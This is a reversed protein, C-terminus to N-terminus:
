APELVQAGLIAGGVVHADDLLAERLEPQARPVHPRRAALQRLLDLVLNGSDDARPAQRSRASPRSATQVSSRPAGAVLSSPLRRSWLAGFALPPCLTVGSFRRLRRQNPAARVSPTRWNLWRLRARWSPMVEPSISPLGSIAMRLVHDPM